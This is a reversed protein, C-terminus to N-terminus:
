EDGADEKAKKRWPMMSGVRSFFNLIHRKFFLFAAAVATAIPLLMQFVYGGTNPDIYAFAISPAALVAASILLLAKIM